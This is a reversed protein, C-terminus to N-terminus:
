NTDGFRPSPPTNAHRGSNDKLINGNKEENKYNYMFVAQIYNSNSQEKKSNSRNLSESNSRCENEDSGEFTFKKSDIMNLENRLSNRKLLNDKRTSHKQSIEKFLTEHTSCKRLSSSIALMEQHLKKSFENNQMFKEAFAKEEAEKKMSMLSYNNKIKMNLLSSVMQSKPKSKGLANVNIKITKPKEKVKRQAKSYMFTKAPTVQKHVKKASAQKKLSYIVAPAKKSIPSDTMKLDISAVKVRALRQDKDNVEVTNSVKLKDQCYQLEEKPNSYRKTFTGNKLCSDLSIPVEVEPKPYM